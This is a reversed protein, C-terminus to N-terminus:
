PASDSAAEDDGIALTAVVGLLFALEAAQQAGDLCRPDDLLKHGRAM